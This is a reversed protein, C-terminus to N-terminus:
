TSPTYHELDLVHQRRSHSREHRAVRRGSHWIEVHLPYVRAEVRTGAKIPVSYANTKIVVCGQKDVLPCTVDALDFEEPARPLLHDREAVMAVGVPETRGDLIRAEDARCGTLLLANLAGLDAVCPVPVLHNRRFYGGEGEVGGKEHGEGPTCFEAAFRWHSRFAVFRVTEERRYGRLIKRVASALNDYRLLRFVGGFYDFAQEHAELFAQQTAHPYARNFAAGSGGCGNQDEV